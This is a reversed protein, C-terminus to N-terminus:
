SPADERATNARERKAYECEAVARPSAYNWCIENERKGNGFTDTHYYFSICCERGTPNRIQKLGDPNKRENVFQCLASASKTTM